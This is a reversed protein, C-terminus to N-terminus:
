PPELRPLVAPPGAGDRLVRFPIGYAQTLVEATLTASPDGEALARGERLLLARDGYLIAPNPNHSTAM